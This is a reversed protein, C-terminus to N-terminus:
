PEDERNESASVGFEEELTEPNEEAMRQINELYIAVTKEAEQFLNTLGVAAEALSGAKSIEVRRSELAANAEQLRTELEEIRKQQSTLIELLEVRKLKRLEKDTM